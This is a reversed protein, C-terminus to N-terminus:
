KQSWISWLEKSTNAIEIKDITPNSDTKRWIVSVRCPQNSFFGDFQFYGTLSVGGGVLYTRTVGGLHLSRLSDQGRSLLDLEQRVATQIQPADQRVRSRRGLLWFCGAFLMLGLFIIAVKRM